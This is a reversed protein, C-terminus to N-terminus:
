MKLGKNCYCAADAKAFGTKGATTGAPLLLDSVILGAAESCHQFVRLATSFRTAAKYLAAERVPFDSKNPSNV